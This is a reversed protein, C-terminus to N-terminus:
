IPNFWDCVWEEGFIIGWEEGFLILPENTGGERNNFITRYKIRM